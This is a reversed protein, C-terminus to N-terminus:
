RPCREGVIVDAPIPDRDVGESADDTPRFGAADDRDAVTAAPHARTLIEAHAPGPRSTVIGGWEASDTERYGRRIM